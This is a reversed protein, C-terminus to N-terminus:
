RGHLLSKVSNGHDTQGFVQRQGSPRSLKARPKPNIPQPGSPAGSVLRRPVVDRFAAAGEPGTLM